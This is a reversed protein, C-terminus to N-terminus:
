NIKIHNVLGKLDLTSERSKDEHTDDSPEIIANKTIKTWCKPCWIYSLSSLNNLNLSKQSLLFGVEERILPELEAMRERVIGEAIWNAHNIATELARQQISYEEYDNYNLTAHCCPCQVMTIEKSQAKQILRLSEEIAKLRKESYDLKLAKRLFDIQETSDQNLNKIDLLPTDCNAGWSTLTSFEWLQWEKVIAKNQSDRKIAKVGISHELTKGHEAYLKYDNYTDLSIQKNMNFQATMELYKDTEKGSVPVGLLINQDHNLFWKVRDFNENLTKVFSGKESIDGDSDKNGFANVAINVLGKEDVDISKTKCVRNVIKEM